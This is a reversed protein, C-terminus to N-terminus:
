RFRAEIAQSWRLDHQHAFNAAPWAAIALLGTSYELHRLRTTRSDLATLEMSHRIMSGLAGGGWEIRERDNRYVVNPLVLRKVIPADLTMLFFTGPKAFGKGFRKIFRLGPTWAPWRDIDSLLAYLTDVDTSIDSTHDIWTQRPPLAFPGSV